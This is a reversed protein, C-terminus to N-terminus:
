GPPLHSLLSELGPILGRFGHGLSTLVARLLRGGSQSVRSLHECMQSYFSFSYVHRGPCHAHALGTWPWSPYVTVRERCREMGLRRGPVWHKLGTASKQLLNILTKKVSTRGNLFFAQLSVPGILHIVLLLIELM